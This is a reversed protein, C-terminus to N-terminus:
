STAIASMRRIVFWEGIECHNRMYAEQTRVRNGSQTASSRKSFPDCILTEKRVYMSSLSTLPSEVKEFFAMCPKVRVLVLFLWNKCLLALRVQCSRRRFRRPPNRQRCDHDSTEVSRRSVHAGFQVKLQRGGCPSLDTKHPYIPRLQLLALELFM